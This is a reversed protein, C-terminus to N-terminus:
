NVHEHRAVLICFLIFHRHVYFTFKARPSALFPTSTYSWKKKLTSALHPLHDFGGGAEKCGTFFAPVCQVPPQTPRLNPRSLYPFDLGWWSEIGFWGSRLSDSYRSSKIHTKGHM